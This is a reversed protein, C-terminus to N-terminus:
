TCFPLTCRCALSSEMARIRTRIRSAASRASPSSSHAKRGVVTSYLHAAASFIWSSCPWSPQSSLLQTTSSRYPSDSIDASDSFFFKLSVAYVFAMDALSVQRYFTPGYSSSFTVGTLQQFAMISCAIRPATLMLNEPLPSYVYTTFMGLVGGIRRTSFIRGPGRKERVLKAM